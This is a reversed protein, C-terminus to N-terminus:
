WKKFGKWRPFKKFTKTDGYKTEPVWMKINQIYADPEYLGGVPDGFYIRNTNMTITGTPTNNWAGFTIAVGDIWMNFTYTTTKIYFLYTHNTTNDGTIGTTIKYYQTGASNKFNVAWEDTGTQRNIFIENSAQSGFTGDSNILLHAEYDAATANLFQMQWQIYFETQSINEGSKIGDANADLLFSGGNTANYFTNTNYNVAAWVLATGNNTVTTNAANNTCPINYIYTQGFLFFPIFLFLIIKNM